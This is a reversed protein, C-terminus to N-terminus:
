HISNKFILDLDFGVKSKLDYGGNRLCWDFIVGRTIRMITDRLETPDIDTKIEGEGIAAIISYKIERNVYRDEGFTYQDESSIFNKYVESVFDVGFKQVQWAGEELILVIKDIHSDFEKFEFEKQLQLDIKKYATHIIEKKSKFHHYFAGISINGADCIDKVSVSEFGKSKILSMSIESIKLKTAIAQKQRETLKKDM